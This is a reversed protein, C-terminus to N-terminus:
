QLNRYKRQIEQFTIGVVGKPAQVSFGQPTTKPRFEKKLGKVKRLKGTNTYGGHEIKFAYPLANSIYVVPFDSRLKLLPKRPAAYRNRGEPKVATNISGENINWSARFRGTDVPSRKIIREYADLAITQASTKFINKNDDISQNISLLFQDKNIMKITM